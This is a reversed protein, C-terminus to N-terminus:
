NLHFEPLLADGVLINDAIKGNDVLVVGCELRALRSDYTGTM